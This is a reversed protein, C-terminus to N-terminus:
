AKPGGPRFAMCTASAPCISAFEESARVPAPASARDIERFGLKGFFAPATTTLLYFEDLGDVAAALAEGVLRAGLGASRREAAVAVSRLLGWREYREVAAVGVLREGVVAVVYGGPFRETVGGLPLRADTLLALVADQDRERAPCVAIAEDGSSGVARAEPAVASRGHSTM